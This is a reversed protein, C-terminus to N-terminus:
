LTVLEYYDPSLKLHSDVVYSRRLRPVPIGLSVSTIVAGSLFLLLPHEAPLPLYLQSTSALFTALPESWCPAPFLAPPPPQMYCIVDPDGTYRTHIHWTQNIWCVLVYLVSLSRLVNNIYSFCDPMLCCFRNYVSYHRCQHKDDCASM